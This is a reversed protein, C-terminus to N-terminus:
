IENSLNLTKTIVFYYFFPELEMFLFFFFFIKRAYQLTYIYNEWLDKSTKKQTLIPGAVGIKM